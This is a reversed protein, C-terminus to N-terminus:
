WDFRSLSAQSDRLDTQVKKRKYFIPCDSNSCLVDQHLSGQCRQCQTWLKAFTREHDNVERVRKLYVRPEHKKCHDCVTGSPIKARCGLCLISKKAFMMIGGKRAVPTPKSVVRTHDGHLLSSTNPIIPEFIRTLPKSLQQDLYYKADIPINNELVYVPDESKEYTAAGKAGTVIVYPVRDGVAPATGPDRIRMRKALEAHASKAKYEKTDAEKSLAKTIVLLSIDIKNQLLDAIARKAYDIASATDRDIIIKRLCGDILQRVLGCNDRRVTELGKADMYDHTEPRTWLLGAYRKKNMLLYPFYVKEFELKVPPPFIKTVEAAVIEARPLTAAVDGFGFNVMVSDTDGYVVVADAPYGNAITYKEEVFERTRLLLTRGYSTVTSAIPLCPLQGVAAGTFGYVSNASIKLALQRGNQVAEEMSGRAAKKMDAKARKRAALLDALIQPLVGRKTQATVFHHVGDVCKPGALYATGAGGPFRQEADAKTLITSYCLNYAQMISPYLSAFDLTAIPTEYFAKKPDIVTAGEFKADADAGAKKLNPVLLKNGRCRRLLMSFVKIQQGRSLLYDLPVGTVRAMEVYNILVALKWMLRLVLLSDKLCYVALRRRDEDTGNQLDAIISHHVDEKQQGLFEACVSNLSYSSLKHNRFMYPLLDFMVRGDVTTEVNERKGMQASQISTDRMRAMSGFVRGLEFFRSLKPHKKQLTRARKLLYPMDFNQTNYGTIVDPDVSRVFEAWKLLLEPETASPVVDAGNIPTCGNLTFIVQCLPEPSGQLQVVVSIQIVPDREPEPFVGKRGQCEIDTSLVRLPALGSWPGEPAHSLLSDFVVDLEVDCRTKKASLARRAYTEAPAEVWNCGTIECDIMFRLTFPVNTEYHTMASHGAGPVAVGDQLIKRLTPIMTPLAVYIKFFKQNEDQAFGMISSRDELLEVGLVLRACQKAQGMARGRLAAELARQLGAANGDYGAPAAAYCYPTFGHCHACVSYGEKTVGYLRVIPVPRNRSGPVRRGSAAAPHTALPDGTYMDIATWQFAVAGLSAPPAPRAYKRTDWLAAEAAAAPADMLDMLDEEYDELVDDPIDFDDM